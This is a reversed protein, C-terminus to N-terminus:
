VPEYGPIVRKLHALQEKFEQAGKKEPSLHLYHAIEHVIGKDGLIEDISVRGAKLALYSLFCAEHLIEVLDEVNSSPTGSSCNAEGIILEGINRENCLKFADEYSYAFVYSAYREGEQYYETIFRKM